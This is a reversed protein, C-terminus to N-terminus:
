VEEVQVPVKFTACFKDWCPECIHAFHQDMDKHSCFGWVHNIEIYALNEPKLDTFGLHPKTFCSEGCVNCIVDDLVVVEHTEVEKHFKQM